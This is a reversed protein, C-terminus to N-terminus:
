GDATLNIWYENLTTINYIHDLDDDDEVFEHVPETYHAEEALDLPVVIRLAKREFTMKIKNLNIIVDIDFDWEIGLLTPCPNSADM